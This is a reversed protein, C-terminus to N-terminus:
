GTPPKWSDRYVIMRVYEKEKEPLSQEWKEAEQIQDPTPWKEVEIEEEQERWYQIAYFDELAIKLDQGDYIYDKPHRDIDKILKLARESSINLHLKIMKVASHLNFNEKKEVIIFQM